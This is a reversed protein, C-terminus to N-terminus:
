HAHEKEGSKHGDHEGRPEANEPAGLGKAVSLIAATGRIAKIADLSSQGKGAALQVTHDPHWAEQDGAKKGEFQALFGSEMLPNGEAHHSFIVVKAITDDPKIGVAAPVSDGDPEQAEFFAIFGLVKGEAVAEYMTSKRRKSGLKGRLMKEVANVQEGSLNVHQERFQGAKPFVAKLQKNTQPAIEHARGVSALTSVISIAVLMAKM